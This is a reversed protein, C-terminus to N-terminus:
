TGAVTVPTGTAAGRATDAATSRGSSGGPECSAAAIALLITGLPRATM